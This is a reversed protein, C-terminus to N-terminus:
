GRTPNGVAFATVRCDYTLSAGPPLRAMGTDTAPPWVAGFPDALNFQPEVVVFPKEPPAYVQVAKVHPSRSALRLGVGAAPDLVEVVVEGDQRSLGTFCDDLFLDGLPPADAFDYPGGATAELRGTPLVEDYDNVEARQGAALRLRARRRDGSPLAFYPHWGLGLPLPEDGTNRALIEVSLAGADLRWEFELALRGPWRGGFDGADLAGTVRGPSPQEFPIAADLILGHMAYQEAGPAKGGWNRPLRVTRGDVEAEIERVGDVARGRIRNAYPALLCGGFAFAQNGAFDEPGGSLAQAAETLPPAFLADVVEGSPLRLRAQLLMMGRGPLVQAELFGPEGAPPEGCLTVVPAGGIEISSGGM